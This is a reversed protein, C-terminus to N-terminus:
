TGTELTFKAGANAPTTSATITTGSELPTTSQTPSVSVATFATDSAPAADDRALMGSAIARCVARNGVTKQMSLVVSENAVPVAVAPAAVPPAAQPAATSHEM